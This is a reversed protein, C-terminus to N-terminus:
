NNKRNITEKLDQVSDKHIKTLGRIKIIVGTKDAYKKVTVHNYGILRGVERLSLYDAHSERGYEYLANDLMRLLTSSECIQKVIKKIINQM